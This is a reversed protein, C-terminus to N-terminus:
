KKARRERCGKPEYSLKKMEPYRQHFPYFEQRDNVIVRLERDMHEQLVDAEPNRPDLADRYERRVAEWTDLLILQRDYGFGFARNVAIQLTDLMYQKSLNEAAHMLNNQINKQKQLFGSQKPM